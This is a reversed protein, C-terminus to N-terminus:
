LHDRGAHWKTPHTTGTVKKGEYHCVDMDDVVVEACDGCLDYAGEARNGYWVQHRLEPDFEVGCEHCDITTPPGEPTTM